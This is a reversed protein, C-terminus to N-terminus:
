RLASRPRLRASLWVLMTDVGEALLLTGAAQEYARQDPAADRISRALLERDAGLEIGTHLLRDSLRERFTTPV